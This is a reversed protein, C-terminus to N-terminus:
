HASVDVIIYQIEMSVYVNDLLIISFVIQLYWFPRTKLTIKLPTYNFKSSVCM